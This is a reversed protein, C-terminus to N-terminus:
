TGTLYSKYRRGTCLVAMMYRRCGYAGVKLFSRPSSIGGGSNGRKEDGRLKLRHVHNKIYLDFLEQLQAEKRYM